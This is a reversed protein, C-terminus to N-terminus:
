ETIFKVIPRLILTAIFVVIGLLLFAMVIYAFAWLTLVAFGSLAWIVPIPTM